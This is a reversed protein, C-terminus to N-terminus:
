IPLPFKPLLQQLSIMGAASLAMSVVGTVILIAVLATILDAKFLDMLLRFYATFGLTAFVLVVFFAIVGGVYPIYTVLATIIMGVSLILTPYTITALGDFYKGKLGLMKMVATLVAGLILGGIFTAPFILTVALEPRIVVIGPLLAAVQPMGIAVSLALLIAAILLAAAGKVLNREKEIKKLCSILKETM